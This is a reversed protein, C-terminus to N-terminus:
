LLARAIVSPSSGYYLFKLGIGARRIGSGRLEAGEGIELGGMGSGEWEREREREV